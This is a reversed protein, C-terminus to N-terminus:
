GAGAAGRARRAGPRAAPGSRPGSPARGRRRRRAPAPCVAGAASRARVSQVAAEDAVGHVPERVDVVYARLGVAVVLRPVPRRRRLPDAGARRLPVTRQDVRGRVQQVDGRPRPQRRPRPLRVLDGPDAPTHEVVPCRSRRSRRSRSRAAPAAGPVLALVDGGLEGHQLAVAAGPTSGLPAYWRSDGVVTVSRSTSAYSTSSVSEASPPRCCSGPRRWCRRWRYTASSRTGTRASATAPATRTSAAPATSAASRATCRGPPSRATGAACRRRGTSCTASGTSASRPPARGRSGRAAPRHRQLDGARM